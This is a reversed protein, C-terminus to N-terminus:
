PTRVYMKYTYTFKLTEGAKVEPRWELSTVPNLDGLARTGKAVKPQGDASVLDGEFALSIRMPSSANRNNAATLTGKVTILDYSSGNPLRLNGRDRGVEEEMAESDIDMTKTIRVEAEQGAAVYSNTDQGLIEGNQFTTAVATTMPKDTSNKFTVSHWIDQPEAQGGDMVSSRDVDWAFLDKYPAKFSFLSYSARDGKKLTIGKLKYLYLDERQEGQGITPVAFGNEADRGGGGMGGAKQAVIGEERPAFSRNAVSGLLEDMADASLLPDVMDSYPLHPFGTIFSADVDDLDALQNIVTAKATVELEKDSTLDIAYSPLWMLGRELGVTTITGPTKADVDLRLVGKTGKVPVDFKPSEPFLLRKIRGKGIVIVGDSTQLILQDAVSKMLTGTLSPSDYFDVTVKHGTNLDILSDLNAVPSTSTTDVTTASTRSITIGSSPMHWYTGYAAMPPEDITYSGSQDVPMTRAVFSFGNKFMSVATIKQKGEISHSAFALAATLVIM